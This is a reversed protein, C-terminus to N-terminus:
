GVRRPTSSTGYRHVLEVQSHVELKRFVAQAHRRVTHVSIFLSRAIAPPRVGHVMAEFIEQERPTLRKSSPMVERTHSERGADLPESPLPRALEITGRLAEDTFPRFLYGAPHTDRARLLLADDAHTVIYLVAIDSTRMLKTALTPADLACAPSLAILAVDCEQALREVLEPELASCAVDYGQGRVATALMEATARDPEVILIRVNEQMSDIGGNRLM